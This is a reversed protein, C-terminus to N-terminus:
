WWPPTWYWSAVSGFPCCIYTAAGDAGEFKMALRSRSDSNSASASTFERCEAALLARMDYMALLGMLLPCVKVIPAPRDTVRVGVAAFMPPPCVSALPHVRGLTDYGSRIM